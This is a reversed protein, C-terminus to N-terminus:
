DEGQISIHGMNPEKRETVNGVFTDYHVKYIGDWILIKHASDAIYDDNDPLM